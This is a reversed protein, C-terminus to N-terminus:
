IWVDLLLASDLDKPLDGVAKQGKYALADNM